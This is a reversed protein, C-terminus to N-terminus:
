MKKLRTIVKEACFELEMPDKLDGKRRAQNVKKRRDNMANM